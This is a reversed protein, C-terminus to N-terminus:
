ACDVTDETTLAPGAPRDPRDAFTSRLMFRWAGGEPCRPPPVLYSRGTRSNTRGVVLDMEVLTTPWGFLPLLVEEFDIVAGFPPPAPLARGEFWWAARAPETMTVFALQRPVRGRPRANFIQITGPRFEVGPAIGSFRVTGQGVRARSCRRPVTNSLRQPSCFPFATVDLRMGPPLFFQDRLAPSPVAGDDTSRTLEAHLRHQEDLRVDFSQLNAGHATGSGLALGLLIGM